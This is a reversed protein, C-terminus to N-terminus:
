STLNGENIKEQLIALMDQLTLGKKGMSKIQSAFGERLESATKEPSPFAENWSDTIPDVGHRVETDYVNKLFSWLSESWVPKMKGKDNLHTPPTREPDLVLKGEKVGVLNTITMRLARKCPGSLGAGAVLKVLFFPNGQYVQQMAPILLRLEALITRTRINAIDTKAQAKLLKLDSVATEIEENTLVPIDVGQNHGIAAQHDEVTEAGINEAHGDIPEIVSEDEPTEDLTFDPHLESADMVEGHLVTSEVSSEETTVEPQDAVAIATNTQSSQPMAKSRNNQRKM